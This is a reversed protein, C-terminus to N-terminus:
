ALEEIPSSDYAPDYFITDLIWGIGHKSIIMLMHKRRIQEVIMFVDNFKLDIWNGNQALPKPTNFVTYQDYMLRYVLGPKILYNPKM